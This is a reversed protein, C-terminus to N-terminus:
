IIQREFLIKRIGFDTNWQSVEKFGHKRYLEIAPKNQVGTEVIVLNSDFKTFIFELLKKGIGCRFFKPKVVLSNIDIHKDTIEIEIVGALENKEFFYGYFDNRSELYSELPRKLPPFDNVELIEAEVAYALQFVSHIERSVKIDSNKLKKIM